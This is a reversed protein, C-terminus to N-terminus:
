HTILLKGTQSGTHGEVRYFYIGPVLGTLDIKMSHDDPSVSLNVAMVQQGHPEFITMRFQTPRDVTFDFFVERGAPVPFVKSIFNHQGTPGEGIGSLQYEAEFLTMGNGGARTANWIHIAQQKVPNLVVKPRPYALNAQDNYGEKVLTWSSPDPLDQTKRTFNLKQSTSDFYTVLFNNNIGDFSIDPQTNNRANSTIDLRSWFGGGFPAKNAAGSINFNAPGTYRDFIVAVTLGNNGNEVNNQQCSISPNRCLNSFGAADDMSVMFTFDSDFSSKNHTEWIKGLVGSTPEEIAAFYYGATNSLSRGHAIAVKGYNGWSIGLVKNIPFTAGGDGSAMYFATDGPPSTATTFVIGISYPSAGASPHLADTAMAVGHYGGNQQANLTQQGTLNMSGDFSYVVIEQPVSGSLPKRIAAVFVKLGPADNGCVVLSLSSYTYEPGTIGSVSWTLGNDISKALSFGGASLSYCSFIWGNVAAGIDADRQNQNEDNHIVIDNGYDPFESQHHIVERPLTSEQAKGTSFTASLIFFTATLVLQVSTTKM